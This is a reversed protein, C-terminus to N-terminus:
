LCLSCHRCCKLVLWELLDKLCSSKSDHGPHAQYDLSFALPAAAAPQLLPDSPNTHLLTLSEFSSHTSLPPSFPPTPTPSSSFCYKHHGPGVSIPLPTPPTPPSSSSSPDSYCPQTTTTSGM